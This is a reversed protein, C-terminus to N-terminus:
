NWRLFRLVCTPRRRRRDDDGGGGRVALRVPHVGPDPLPRRPDSALHRTDGRRRRDAGTLVPGRLPGDDPGAAAAAAAPDGTSTRRRGLGLSEDDVQADRQGETTTLCGLYTTGTPSSSSTASPPTPM